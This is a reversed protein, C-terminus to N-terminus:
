VAKPERHKGTWGAKWRAKAGEIIATTRAVQDDTPQPDFSLIEALEARNLIRFYKIGLDKAREMLEARSGTKPTVVAKVAEEVKAASAVAPAQAPAVGLWQDKTADAKCRKCVLVMWDMHIVKVEKKCAPCTLITWKVKAPRKAAKKIKKM